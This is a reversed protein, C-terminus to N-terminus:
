KAEFVDTVLNLAIRLTEDEGASHGHEYAYFMAASAVKDRVGTAALRERIANDAEEYRENNILDHIEQNTLM